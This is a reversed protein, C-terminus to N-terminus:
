GLGIIRDMLRGTFTALSQLMFPFLVLLSVFVVVIKPVFTLTMENIQTVVQFVSIVLGVALSILMLPGAVQLLVLVAERAIEVTAAENV